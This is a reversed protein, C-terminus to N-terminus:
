ICAALKIGTGRKGKDIYNVTLSMNSVPINDYDGDNMHM